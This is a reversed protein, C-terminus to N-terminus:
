PYEGRSCKIYCHISRIIDYLFWVGGAFVIWGTFFENLFGEEYFWVGDIALIGAPIASLVSIIVARKISEKYHSIVFVIRDKWNAIGNEKEFVSLVIKYHAMLNSMNLGTDAIMINVYFQVPWIMLQSIVPIYIWGHAISSLLYLVFRIWIIHLKSFPLFLFIIALFVSHLSRYAMPVIFTLYSNRAAGWLSFAYWLGDVLVAVWVVWQIIIYTERM